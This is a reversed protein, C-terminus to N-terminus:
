CADSRGRGSEAHSRQDACDADDRITREGGPRERRVPVAVLRAARCRRGAWAVRLYDGGTATEVSEIRSGELVGTAGAAFRRTFQVAFGPRSSGRLRAALSQRFEADLEIRRSERMIAEAPKADEPDPYMDNVNM